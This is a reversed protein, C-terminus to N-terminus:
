GLSFIWDVAIKHVRRPGPRGRYVGGTYREALAKIHEFADQETSEIVRGRVALYRYPNDPDMISLAVQSRARMNRDKRTGQPTNVLLHEGNYDVWVPTVHPSGDPMLTAIHAFAPKVFLDLMATPIKVLM